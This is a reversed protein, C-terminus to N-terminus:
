GLRESGSSDLVASVWCDLERKTLGGTAGIEEHIAMALRNSELAASSLDSVSDHAEEVTEMAARHAWDMEVPPDDSLPVKGSDLQVAVRTLSQALSDQIERTLRNYEDLAALYTLSQEVSKRETVDIIFATTRIIRGTRDREGVASLLVDVVEGDKKVMQYEISNASGTKFFKPLAVEIAYRRSSDTLFDTSLRGIVENRDYGLVKLWYNNVSILRGKSNISHMMVPTNQYLSRYLDESEPLSENALNRESALTELNSSKPDPPKFERTTRPKTKTQASM